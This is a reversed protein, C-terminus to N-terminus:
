CSQRLRRFNGNRSPERSEAPLRFRPPQFPPSGGHERCLPKGCAAFNASILFTRFGRSKERRIIVVAASSAWWCSMDLNQPILTMAYDFFMGGAQPGYDELLLDPKSLDFLREFTKSANVYDGQANFDVARLFHAPPSEKEVIEPAKRVADLFAVKDKQPLQHMADKMVQALVDVAEENSAGQNAMPLNKQDLSLKGTM